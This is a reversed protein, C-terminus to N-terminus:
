RPVLAYADLGQFQERADDDDDDEEEEQLPAPAPHARAVAAHVAIQAQTRALECQTARIEGQLHGVVGACGYVPDQVRRRAEVAM